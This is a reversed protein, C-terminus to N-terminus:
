RPALVLEVGCAETMAKPASVTWAASIALLTDAATAGKCAAAHPLALSTAGAPELQRVLVTKFAAGRAAGLRGAIVVSEGASQRALVWAALQEASKEATCGEGAGACIASADATVVWLVGGRQGLRLAALGRELTRRQSESAPATFHEAATVRLGATRSLAVATTPVDTGSDSFIARSVSLVHTRAPYLRRAATASTVGLVLVVDADRVTPRPAPAPASRREAGFTHRWGGSRPAPTDAEAAEATPVLRRAPAGGDLALVALALPRRPEPTDAPEADQAGAGAVGLLLAAAAASALRM